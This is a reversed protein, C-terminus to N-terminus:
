LLRKVRLALGPAKGETPFDYNEVLMAMTESKQKEQERIRGQAYEVNAKIGNRHMQGVTASLIEMYRWIYEGSYDQEQRMQMLRKFLLRLAIM